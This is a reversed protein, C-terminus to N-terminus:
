KVDQLSQSQEETKREKGKKGELEAKKQQLQEVTMDTMGVNWEDIMGRREQYEKDALVAIDVSLTKAASILDGVPVEDLMGPNEEMRRLINESLRRNIEIKLEQLLSFYDAKKNKFERLEAQKDSFWRGRTEITWESVHLMEAATANSIGEKKLAHAVSALHYGDDIGSLKNRRTRRKQPSRFLTVTAEEAEACEEEACEKGERKERKESKESKEGQPQIATPIVIDDLEGDFDIGVWEKAM